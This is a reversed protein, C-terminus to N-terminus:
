ARSGIARASSRSWRNTIYEIGNRRAMRRLWDFMTAGDFYGENLLNHSGLIIGDLNYFPYAESIEEPTMIRTGAGLSAQLEQNERLIQALGEDAALYMYGFSQLLIEPTEPDGLRDRFSKIFEVSFQSIKINIEASFQQRICSNTRATSTWEYTPDKEVVLVKGDFDVSDSLFWATASGMLAGGIIVVDYGTEKPENKISSLKM